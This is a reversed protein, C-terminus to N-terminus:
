KNIAGKAFYQGFYAADGDYCEGCPSPHHSYLSIVKRIQVQVISVKEGGLNIYVGEWRLISHSM